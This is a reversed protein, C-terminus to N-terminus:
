HPRVSSFRCDTRDASLVYASAEAYGDQGPQLDTVMEHDRGILLDGHFFGCEIEVYRIGVKSRNKITLLQEARRDDSHFAGNVMELEVGESRYILNGAQAATVTALAVATAVLLKKM